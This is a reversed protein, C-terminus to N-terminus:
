KKKKRNTQFGAATGIVAGIVAPSAFADQWDQGLFLKAIIVGVILGSILCIFINFARKM